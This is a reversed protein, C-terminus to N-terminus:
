ENPHFEKMIMMANVFVFAPILYYANTFASTILGQQLLELVGAMFVVVIASQFYAGRGVSVFTMIQLSMLFIPIMYPFRKNIDIIANRNLVEESSYTISDQSDVSLIYGPCFGSLATLTVYANYVMDNTPNTIAIEVHTNDPIFNYEVQLITNSDIPNVEDVQAADDGTYYIRITHHPSIQPIHVIPAGSTSEQYYAINTNEITNATAQSFISFVFFLFLLRKM